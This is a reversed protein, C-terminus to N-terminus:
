EIRVALCIVDFQGIGEACAADTNGIDGLQAVRQPFRHLSGTRHQDVCLDVLVLADQRHNRCAARNVIKYRFLSPSIM